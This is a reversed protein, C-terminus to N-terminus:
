VKRRKVRAPIATIGLTAAGVLTVGSSVPIDVWIASFFGAVSIVLGYVSARVFLERTSRSHFGAILAPLILLADLLLAGILGMVLTITFGVAFLVALYVMRDDIGSSFATERDYLVARIRPFMGVVFVLVVGAFVTTILADGPTLAFINGWLLGLSEQAPVDFRYLIAFALGVTFVMFFTTIHGANSQSRAGVTSVILVLLANSVMGAILPSSGLALAVSAGLLASHMLAFRLTILNLRLVFVGVLPFLTGSVLLVFAGRLIPPYGLLDFASM